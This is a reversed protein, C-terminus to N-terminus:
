FSGHLLHPLARVNQGVKREAALGVDAAEAERACRLALHGDPLDEVALILVDLCGRAGVRRVNVIDVLDRSVLSVSLVVPLLPM